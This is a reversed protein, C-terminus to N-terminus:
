PFPRRRPGPGTGEAAVPPLAEGDIAANWGLGETGGQRIEVAIAAGGQRRVQQLRLAVIEARMGVLTGILRASLEEM